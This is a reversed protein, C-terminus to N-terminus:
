RPLMDIFSLVNLAAQVVVGVKGAGAVVANMLERLRGIRPKPEDAEARAQEASARVAPGVGSAAITRLLEDLMEQLEARVALPDAYNNFTGSEGIIANKQGGVHVTGGQLHGINIDGSM